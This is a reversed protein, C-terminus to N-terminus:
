AELKSVLYIRLADREDREVFRLVVEEFALSASHVFYNASLFYRGQSFYDNAQMTVVKDCQVLDKMFQLAMDYQKKELYLKWVDRDEHSILLEYISTNTYIWFTNKLQDVILSKVRQGRSQACSAQDSWAWVLAVIVLNM